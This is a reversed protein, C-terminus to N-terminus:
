KVNVADTWVDSRFPSAPLGAANVLNPEAIQNWGFRVAVPKAVGDARVVVADGEITATAAVFKKDEGAVSFWTLPKGDRSKLGASHQFKVRIADGDVQFSEMLPGSYVVNKDYTKALAWLALRKGVDLKNPPHIDNITSIDTTVAMGTNSLKLGATQAEWIEPLLTVNDDYRYPALQVFLFPFDGQNWIKRWGGILGRQLNHYHMGRGRNSEGQYWIVGRIAFPVLPHVMANYLGTATGFGNLPHGPAVPPDPFEKGAEHLPTAISVWKQVATLHDVRAKAYSTLSDRYFKREAELEPIMDFGEPAIWPEIPTGGVSTAILGVPLNLERHLERGFFFLVASFGRATDPNCVIWQSAIRSVPTGSTAVPTFFLRIEPLKAQALEEKSNTSIDVPWAMNSQGSGLWVEGVLIDTLKLTNRGAVTMQLPNRSPKRAPLKVRWEGKENAKTALTDEGLTVVVEEGPEAWGWIPLAKDAQLVMHDGIIARLTVNAHASLPFALAVVAVILCQKWRRM